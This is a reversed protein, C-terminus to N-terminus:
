FGMRGEAKSRWAALLVFLVIIALAALILWLKSYFPANEDGADATTGAKPKVLPAANDPLDRIHQGALFSEPRFDVDVAFEREGLEDLM